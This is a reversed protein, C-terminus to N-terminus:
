KFPWIKFIVKGIIDSKAITGITEDRSDASSNRNDGMVFYSGEPVTLPYDFYGKQNQTDMIYDENLYEGNLYLDYVGDNFKFDIVDGPVGIVRKIIHSDYTTDKYKCIIIDDKKPNSFYYAAKNVAVIDNHEYTPEMSVGKVETTVFLFTRVFLVATVVIIISLVWEKAEQKAPKKKRPKEEEM